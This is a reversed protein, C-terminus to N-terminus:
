HKTHDINQIKVNKPSHILTETNNSNATRFFYPQADIWINIQWRQIKM